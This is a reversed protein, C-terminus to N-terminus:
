GTMKALTVSSTVDSAEFSSDYTITATLGAAGCNAKLTAFKDNGAFLTTPGNPVITGSVANAGLGSDRSITLRTLNLPSTPSATWTIRDASPNPNIGTKLSVPMSATSM